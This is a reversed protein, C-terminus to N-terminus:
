LGCEAENWMTYREVNWAAVACAGSWIVCGSKMVGNLNSLSYTIQKTILEAKICGQIGCILGLVLITTFFHFKTRCLTGSFTISTQGFVTKFLLKVM